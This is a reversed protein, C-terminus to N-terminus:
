LRSDDFSKNACVNMITMAMAMMMMLAAADAVLIYTTNTVAVLIYAVPVKVLEWENALIIYYLWKTMTIYDFTLCTTAHTYLYKWFKTDMSIETEDQSKLREIM